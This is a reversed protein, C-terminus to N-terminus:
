KSKVQKKPITIVIDRTKSTDVKVVHDDILGQEISLYISRNESSLIYKKGDVPQSIFNSYASPNNQRMLKFTEESLSNIDHGENELKETNLLPFIETFINQVSTSKRQSMIVGIRKEVKEYDEQGDTYRRATHKVFRQALRSMVEDDAVLVSNMLNIFYNSITKDQKDLIKLHFNSDLNNVEYNELFSKYIFACKQLHNGLDPLMNQHIVFDNNNVEIGDNTEMKMIALIEEVEDPEADLFGLEKKKFEYNLIVLIFKNKVSFHMNSKLINAINRSNEEFQEEFFCSGCYRYIDSKSNRFRAVKSNIHEVSNIIHGRFFNHVGNKFDKLLASETEIVELDPDIEFIKLYKIL